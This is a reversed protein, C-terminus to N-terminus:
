TMALFDNQNPREKQGSEGRRGYTEPMALAFLVIPFLSVFFSGALSATHGFYEVIM